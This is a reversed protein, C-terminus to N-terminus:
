TPNYSVVNTTIPVSLVIITLGVAMNTNQLYFIYKKLNKTFFFWCFFVAVVVMRCRRCRHSSM